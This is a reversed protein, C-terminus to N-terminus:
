QLGSEKLARDIGQSIEEFTITEIYPEGNVLATPTHAIGRAVGDEFDKQILAQLSADDLAAAAKAADVNNRACFAAVWASFSEVSIQKQSSMTERRFKVALAPDITQFYRATVAAKRAWAHKPLPFDRHEFSVKEAYKPLLKDDLLQRFVACDSCQLDEYIVVRVASDKKGEVLPQQAFSACASFLLAASLRRM